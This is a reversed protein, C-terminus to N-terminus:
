PRPSAPAAEQFITKILGSKHLIFYFVRTRADPTLEETIRFIRAMAQLEPDLQRKKKPPSGGATTTKPYLARGLAEDVPDPSEQQPQDIADNSPAKSRTSV